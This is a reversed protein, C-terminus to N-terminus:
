EEDLLSVCHEERITPVADCTLLSASRRRRVFAHAIEAKPKSPFRVVVTKFRINGDPDDRVEITSNGNEVGLLRVIHQETAERLIKDVALAWQTSTQSLEGVASEDVEGCRHQAANGERVFAGCATCKLCPVHFRVRSKIFAICEACVDMDCVDCHAFSDDRLSMMPQHSSATGSKGSRDRRPAVRVTRSCFDCTIAVLEREIYRARTCMPMVHGESCRMQSIVPDWLPAGLQWTATPVRKTMQALEREPSLSHTRGCSTTLQVFRAFNPPTSHLWGDNSSRRPPPTAGSSSATEGDVSM